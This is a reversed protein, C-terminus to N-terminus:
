IEILGQISVEFAIGPFSIANQAWGPNGACLWRTQIRTTGLWTEIRGAIMPIAM